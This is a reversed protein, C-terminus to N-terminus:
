PSSTSSGQNINAVNYVSRDTFWLMNLVDLVACIGVFYFMVVLHFITMPRCLKSQKAIITYFPDYRHHTHCRAHVSKRTFSSANLYFQLTWSLYCTLSEMCQSSNFIPIVKNLFRHYNIAQSHFFSCNIM